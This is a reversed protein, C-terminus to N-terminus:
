SLPGGRVRQLRNSRAAAAPCVSIHTSRGSAALLPNVVRNAKTHRHKSMRRDGLLPLTQPM